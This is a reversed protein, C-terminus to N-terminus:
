DSKRPNVLIGHLHDIFMMYLLKFHFKGDAARFLKSSFYLLYVPIIHAHKHM